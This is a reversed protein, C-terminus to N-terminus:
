GILVRSVQDEIKKACDEYLKAYKLFRSTDGNEYAYRSDALVRCIRAYRKYRESNEVCARRFLFLEMERSISEERLRDWFRKLFKIM